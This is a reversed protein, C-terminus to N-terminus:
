LIAWNQRFQDSAAGHCRAQRGLHRYVLWCLRLIASSHPRM